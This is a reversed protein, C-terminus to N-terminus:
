TLYAARGPYARWATFEETLLSDLQNIMLVVIIVMHNNTRLLYQLGETSTCYAKGIQVLFNLKNKKKMKDREQEFPSGEKTQQITITQVRLMGKYM